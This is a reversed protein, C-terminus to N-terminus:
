YPQVNGDDNFDRCKQLDNTEMQVWDGGVILSTIESIDMLFGSLTQIFTIQETLNNLAYIHCLSLKFGNFEITTLVMQGHSNKGMTTSYIIVAIFQLNVLNDHCFTYM